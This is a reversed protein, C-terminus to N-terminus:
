EVGCSKLKLPDSLFTYATLIKAGAKLSADYMTAVAEPNSLSLSDPAVDRRNGVLTTGVASDKVIIHRDLLELIRM